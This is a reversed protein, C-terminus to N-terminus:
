RAGLRGRVHKVTHGAPRGAADIHGDQPFTTSQCTRAGSPLRVTPRQGSPPDAELRTIREAREKEVEDGSLGPSDISGSPELAVM